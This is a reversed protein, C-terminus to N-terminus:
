RNKRAAGDRTRRTSFRRRFSRRWQIIPSKFPVDLRGHFHTIFSSLVFSSPSVAANRRENRALSLPFLNRVRYLARIICLTERRSPSPSYLQRCQARVDAVRHNERRLQGNAKTPSDIVFQSCDRIFSFPDLPRNKTTAFDFERRIRFLAHV